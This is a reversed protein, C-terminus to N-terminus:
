EKRNISDQSSFGNPYRKLLKDVNMQLVESMDIDYLTALNVIYFMVDGLEEKLHDMDLDHGHFLHKKLIDTVEGVEGNLGFIMNAVIDNHKLNDNMTRTSKKQYEKIGMEKTISYKTLMDLPMVYEKNDMRKKEKKPSNKVTANYVFILTTFAVVIYFLFLVLLELKEIIDMVDGWKM